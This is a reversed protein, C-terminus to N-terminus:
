PFYIMKKILWFQISLPATPYFVINHYYESSPCMILCNRYSSKLIELNLLKFCYNCCIHIFNEYSFTRSWFSFEKVNLHMKFSNKKKKILHLKLAKYLAATWQQDRVTIYSHIIPVRHCEGGWHPLPLLVQGSRPSRVRWPLAAKNRWVDDRWVCGTPM